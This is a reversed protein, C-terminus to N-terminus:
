KAVAAMTGWCLTAGVVMGVGRWRSTEGM